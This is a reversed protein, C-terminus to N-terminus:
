QVQASKKKSNKARQREREKLSQQLLMQLTQNFSRNDKEAIEMVEKHLDDPIYVSFRKMEKVM